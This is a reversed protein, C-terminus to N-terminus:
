ITNSIGIDDLIISITEEPKFILVFELESEANIPKDLDIVVTFDQLVPETPAYTIEGTELGSYDSLLLPALSGINNLNRKFILSSKDFLELKAGSFLNVSNCEEHKKPGSQAISFNLTFKKSHKNLLFQPKLWKISL